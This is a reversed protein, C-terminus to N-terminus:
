SPRPGFLDTGIRIMTSGEAIAKELDGSMGMSREPLELRDALERVTEFGPRPDISTDTPGITMLGAVDLGLERAGDVLEDVADVACGSKGPENEANVQVFIRAGAARSAITRALEIRDVSQWTHVVDAIQKVKNRQLGGIFHWRPRASPHESTVAAAKAALEQGYNEGVDILGAECAAAVAHPPHRKTVALVTVAEPDGGAAVIRDRVVLLRESVASAAIAHQTEDSRPEDSQPEDSQPEHHTM